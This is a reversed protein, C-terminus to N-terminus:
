HMEKNKICIRTCTFWEGRLHGMEIFKTASVFYDIRYM